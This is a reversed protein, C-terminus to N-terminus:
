TESDNMEKRIRESLVAADHWTFGLDDDSAWRGLTRVAETRTAETYLLTYREEGKVLMIVSVDDPDRPAIRNTPMAKM